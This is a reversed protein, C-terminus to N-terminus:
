SVLGATLPAQTLPNQIVPQAEHRLCHVHTVPSGQARGHQSGSKLRSGPGAICSVVVQWRNHRGENSGGERGANFLPECRIGKSQTRGSAPSATDPVENVAVTEYIAMTQIGFLRGAEDAAPALQERPCPRSSQAHQHIQMEFSRGAGDAAPALQAWPRGVGSFPRKMALTKRCMRGVGSAMSASFPLLRQRRAPTGQRSRSTVKAPAAPRGRLVKMQADSLATKALNCVPGAASGAKQPHTKQAQM